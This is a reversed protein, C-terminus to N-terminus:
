CSLTFLYIINSSFVFGYMYMHLLLRVDENSYFKFLHNILIFRLAVSYLLAAILFLESIKVFFDLRYTSIVTVSFINTEFGINFFM